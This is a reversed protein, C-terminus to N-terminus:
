IPSAFVLIRLGASPEIARVADEAVFKGPWKGTAGPVRQSANFLNGEAAYM